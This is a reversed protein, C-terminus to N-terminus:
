STGRATMERLGQIQQFVFMARSPACRPVIGSTPHAWAIIPWGGPPPEGLPLIVVGSVAVPRGDLGTSRYLVRRASAGAPAGHMQEQRIVTGPPGALSAPASYFSLQAGAPLPSLVLIVLLARVVAKFPSHWEAANTDRERIRKAM